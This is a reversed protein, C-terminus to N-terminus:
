KGPPPVAAGSFRVEKVHPGIDLHAEQANGVSRGNFRLNQITVGEVGHGADLGRCAARHFQSPL